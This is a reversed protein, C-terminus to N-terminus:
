KSTRPAHGHNTQARGRYITERWYNSSTSEQRERDPIQCEYQELYSTAVLLPPSNEPPVPLRGGSPVLRREIREMSHCRSTARREELRQRCTPAMPGAPINSRQTESHSRPVARLRVASATAGCSPAGVLRGMRKGEPAMPSRPGRRQVPVWWSASAYFNQQM